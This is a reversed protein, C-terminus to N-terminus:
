LVKTFSLVTINGEPRDEAGFEFLSRIGIISKWSPITVNVEPGIAHVQDKVGTDPDDKTTQWQCYGAVGAEWIRAFSKGVGWELHFDDGPTVDTDRKRSHIEYRPLVSASWTKADDFYLTGGVSFLGTWMDSGPSAPDTKDYKGTPMFIGAAFAADFRPGHWALIIPEICIDGLGFESNHIKAAGIELDVNLVPVIIDAGFKAGLLEYDSIWDFRHANALLNLDFDVNLKDGNKDTLTDAHYYIGYMKYYYGPPPLTAAKIGESGNPYVNEATAPTACQLFSFVCLILLIGKDFKRMSKGKM